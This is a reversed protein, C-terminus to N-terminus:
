RLPPQHDHRDGRGWTLFRVDDICNTLPEDELWGSNRDM